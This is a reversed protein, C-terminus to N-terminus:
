SVVAMKIAVNILDRITGGYKLSVAVAALILPLAMILPIIIKVALSKEKDKKM